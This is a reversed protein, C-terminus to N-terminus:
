WSVADLVARAVQQPTGTSAPVAVDEVQAARLIADLEGSRDLHWRLGAPDEAHRRALRTRVVTLEVDLRVLRLPVGVATEYRRREARSEVVGALVLRLAGAALYTQSVAALNRLRLALNFRDDPPAPWARALEDLDIVAHAVQANTLYEGTQAAVTTKGSGVTGSILL